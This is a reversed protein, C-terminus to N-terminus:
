IDNAGVASLSSIKEISGCHSWENQLKTVINRENVIGRKLERLARRNCYNRKEM